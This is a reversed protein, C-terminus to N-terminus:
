YVKIKKTLNKHILWRKKEHYQVTGYRQVKQIWNAWEAFHLACDLNLSRPDEWPLCCFPCRTSYNCLTTVPDQELKHVCQAITPTWLKTVHWGRDCMAAIPVNNCLLINQNFSYEEHGIMFSIQTYPLTMMQRLCLSSQDVYAHRYNYVNQLINEIWTLDQPIVGREKWRRMRHFLMCKHLETLRDEKNLYQLFHSWKCHRLLATQPLTPYLFHTIHYKERKSAHPLWVEMIRRLGFLSAHHTCRSTCLFSYIDKWDIFAYIYGICDLPLGNM